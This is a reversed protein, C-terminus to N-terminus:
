VVIDEAQIPSNELVVTGFESIMRFCNSARLLPNDKFWEIYMNPDSLLTIRTVLHVCVDYQNCRAITSLSLSSSFSFTKTPNTNQTLGTISCSREEQGNKHKTKVKDAVVNIPLPSFPSAGFCFLFNFSLSNTSLHIFWTQIFPIHYMIFGLNM